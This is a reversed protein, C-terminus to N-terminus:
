IRISNLCDMSLKPTMKIVDKIVQLKTESM